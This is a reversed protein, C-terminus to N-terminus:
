QQRSAPLVSVSNIHKHNCDYVSAGMIALFSVLFYLLEKTVLALFWTVGGLIWLNSVFTRSAVRVRRHTRYETLCVPCGKSHSQVTGVVREFCEEHIWTNCDCVRYLPLEEGVCVFCQRSQDVLDDATM